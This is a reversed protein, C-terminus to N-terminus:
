AQNVRIAKWHGTRFRLYFCLTMVFIYATAFWWAWYLSPGLWVVIATPIVMEPWGLAFTVRSLFRTDGAGRLAFAFALNGAEALLYMAVCARMGPVLEAVAEFNGIECDEQFLAVLTQPLFVYVGAVAAMYGFMWRFGTYTTREPVGPQNAGLRQGVFICLAQGMGMMPLFEVMNLRIAPTKAGTAAEGSQGVLLVFLNFVLVDLFGQLGAPGGFRVLRVFLPRDFRCSSLSAFETRYKKRLILAMAVVASLWSGM